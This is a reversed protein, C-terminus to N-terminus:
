KKKKHLEPESNGSGGTKKPSCDIAKQRAISEKRTLQTAQGAM